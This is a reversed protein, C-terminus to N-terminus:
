ALVTRIEHWAAAINMVRYIWKVQFSRNELFWQYFVARMAPGEVGVPLSSMYELLGPCHAERIEVGLRRYTENPDYQKVYRAM